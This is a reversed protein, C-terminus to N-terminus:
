KNIIDILKQLEHELENISFIGAKRIYEAGNVFILVTPASFVAFNGRVEPHAEIDIINFLIDPHLDFLEELKPRISLCPACKKSSFYLAVVPALTTARIIDTPISNDTNM